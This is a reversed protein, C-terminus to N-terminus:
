RREVNEWFWFRIWNFQGYRIVRLYPPSTIILDVSSTKIKTMIRADKNLAIGKTLPRQYCKELKSRLNDFVNREPKMLGHEAIYNKVYNPSMSFTNPMSLSLYIGSNGHMIGLLMATIFADVNSTKWRLKRKMFLLQKLTFDNFIMRINQDVNDIEINDPNFEAELKAIRSVIRGKQPVNSKAKTLVYALKNKDNGMGVRNLLCAELMTTGRGSFPDLVVDKEESYKNIFFNPLSPPFMAMYSCITHLKNGMNKPLEKWGCKEKM